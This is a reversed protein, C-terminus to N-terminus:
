DKGQEEIYKAIIKRIEESGSSGSRKCANIFDYWQERGINRINIDIKSKTKDILSLDAPPIIETKPRSTIIEWANLYYTHKGNELQRESMVFTYGCKERPVMFLLPSEDKYGVVIFIFIDIKDQRKGHHHCNFFWFPKGMPLGTGKSIYKTVRPRAIKVDITGYETIFDAGYKNSVNPNWWYKINMSDLKKAVLSEGSLGFKTNDM